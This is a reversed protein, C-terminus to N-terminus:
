HPKLWDDDNRPGGDILTNVAGGVSTARHIITAEEACSRRTNVGQRRSCVMEDHWRGVLHVLARM